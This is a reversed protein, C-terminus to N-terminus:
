LGSHFRKAVTWNRGTETEPTALGCLSEPLGTMNPDPRQGCVSDFDTPQVPQLLGDPSSSSSIPRGTNTPLPLLRGNIGLLM